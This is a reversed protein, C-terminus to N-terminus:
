YLPGFNIWKGGHKLVNDIAKIYDIINSATDLFFNTVVVDFSEKCSKKLENADPDKLEGGPKVPGYLELFSGATISMLEDYPIHPKEEKLETLVSYPAIDPILLGRTQYARKVLHSSKGLFPFVQNSFPYQCYNLIYSSTLLMHYSIENGQTWFGRMVLEMVLRGLGCGPNLIKVKSRAAEDPYMTELEKLIMNISVEREDKGEDSWERALQLLTTNTIDFEKTTAPTWDLPTGAVGWDRAITTALQETFLRNQQICQKLLDTHEQYWPLLKKESDTMAGFKILRPKIINEFQHKYFNNFSSLTATLAQYEEEDQSMTVKYIR